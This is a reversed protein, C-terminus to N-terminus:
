GIARGKRRGMRRCVVLRKPGAGLAAFAARGAELRDLLVEAVWLPGHVNRRAVSPWGPEIAEVLVAGALVALPDCRGPNLAQGKAVAPQHRVVRGRQLPGLEVVRTARDDVVEDDLVCSVPGKSVRVKLSTAPLARSSHRMSETDHSLVEFEFRWDSFPVENQTHCSSYSRSGSTIIRDTTLRKPPRTPQGATCDGAWATHPHRM